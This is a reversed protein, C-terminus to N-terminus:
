AQRGFREAEDFRTDLPTAIPQPWSFSREAQDMQSKM